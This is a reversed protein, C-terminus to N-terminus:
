DHKECGAFIVRGYPEVYECECFWYRVDILNMVWCEWSKWQRAWTGKEALGMELLSLRSELLILRKDLDAEDTQKWNELVKAAREGKETLSFYRVARPGKKM